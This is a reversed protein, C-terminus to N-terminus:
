VIMTVLTPFAAEDPDMVTVSESGAPNIAVVILPVPQVVFRAFRVHVRDSLRAAPAAYGGIVSVTFTEALAGALTVFLTATDPPPSVFRAFLVAFSGVVTRAAPGGVAVVSAAVPTPIVVAVSFPV